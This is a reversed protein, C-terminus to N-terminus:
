KGGYAFFNDVILRYGNSTVFVGVGSSRLPNEDSFSKVLESNIYLELDGAEFYVSLTNTEPFPRLTGQTPPVLEDWKGAKYKLLRFYGTKPAVEFLYYSELSNSIGFILGYAFGNDIDTSFDAQIYYPQSLYNFESSKGIVFRQGINSQLILKGHIIELKGYPYFLGWERKNSSFDEQMVLSQDAPQRVLIHPAQTVEPTPTPTANGAFPSTRFVFVATVCVMLFLLILCGGALQTM